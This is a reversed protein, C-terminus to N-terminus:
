EISGPRLCSANLRGCRQGQQVATPLDGGRALVSALGAAFADGSGISNLVDIPEVEAECVRREWTFLTPLEGRTLVIHCGFQRSLQLMLERVRAVLSGASAQEAHNTSPTFTAVFESFNPKIV